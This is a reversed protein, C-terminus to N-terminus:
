VSQANRKGLVFFLATLVISALLVMFQEPGLGLTDPNANILQHQYLYAAIVAAANNLFHALMPLWISGSWLLLYGLLAGLLLRPVFGYFQLHMASFLLAAAWIGVQKKGSWESFLRQVVGRFLWEEGIAPLLAIMFLNFLLAGPDPMDLFAETLVAAKDESDRMWQEVPALFSPLHMKSNLDGLLNILPVATLMGLGVWLLSTAPAVKRLQLYEKPDGHFLYALVWAPVIFTGITSGTQIVKLVQLTLPNKVDQLMNELQYMPIGYLGTVVVTSLLTFAVASILIVGVGLLFKSYPTNQAWISKLPM